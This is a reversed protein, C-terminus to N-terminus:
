PSSKKANRQYDQPTIGTERKFIRSFNHPALGVLYSIESVSFDTTELLQRAKQVRLRLLYQHPTAGTKKKFRASFYSRELGIQDAIKEVPLEEGYNTQMYGIAKNLWTDTQAAPRNQLLVGLLGYACATQRLGAGSDTSNWSAVLNQLWHQVQNFLSPSIYPTSSTIGAEQLYKGVSAGDLACWLGERHCNPYTDHRVADGPLLVYAEGACFPFKKGNITVSGKGGTCCEIVYVSRVTPGSGRGPPIYEQEAFLLQIEPPNNRPMESVRM